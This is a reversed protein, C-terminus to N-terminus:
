KEWINGIVEFDHLRNISYIEEETELCIMFEDFIIKGTVETVAAKTRFKANCYDDFYIKKGNKDKLGTYQMLVINNNDTVFCKGTDPDYTSIVSIGLNINHSLRDPYVMKESEKDWARFKIERM